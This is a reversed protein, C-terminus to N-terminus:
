PAPRPAGDRGRRRGLVEVEVGDKIQPNAALSEFAIRVVANDPTGPMSRFATMVIQLRKIAQNVAAKAAPPLSEPAKLSVDFGQTKMFAEFDDGPILWEDPFTVEFRFTNNTYTRGIVRGRDTLPAMVVPKTPTAKPKPRPKVQASVGIASAFIMLLVFAFHRM